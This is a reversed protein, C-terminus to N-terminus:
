ARIDINNNTRTNPLGVARKLHNAAMKFTCYQQESPAYGMIASFMDEPKMIMEKIDMKIIDQEFRLIDDIANKRERMRKAIELYKSYSNGVRELYGIFSDYRSVINNVKSSKKLALPMRMIATGKRWFDRGIFDHKPLMKTWANSIVYEISHLMHYIGSPNLKRNSLNRNYIFDRTLELNNKAWNAKSPEIQGSGIGLGLEIANFSDMLKTYERFNMRSSKTRKLSKLM